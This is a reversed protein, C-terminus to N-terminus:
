VWLTISALAMPGKKICLGNTYSKHVMLMWFMSQLATNAWVQQTIGITNAGYIIVVSHVM